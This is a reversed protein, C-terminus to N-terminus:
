KLERRTADTSRPLHSVWWGEVLGPHLSLWNVPNRPGPGHAARRLRPPRPPRHSALPAGCSTRAAEAYAGARDRCVTHAGPHARLWAALTDSTRDPLLDLPRHTLIDIIVTGYVHGRRLAFDDVGVVQPTGIPPDPLARILRLMSDRSVIMGLTDALRAGARGALALGIMELTM